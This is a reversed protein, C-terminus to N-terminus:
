IAEKPQRKWRRHIWVWQEPYRRVMQEVMDSCKQVDEILDAEPDGSDSVNIPPFFEIHYTMDKELHMFGCIIPINFRRALIVPGSPTNAKKGFFDVFVGKVRTDQDILMGLPCGERLARVIERTGTGRAINIYGAQNRTETILQDLKPNNIPTGVVKLPYGKWTLWAGLLEWNGFHATLLLMGTGKKFADEFYHMNEATIYRDMGEKIFIPIRIADVGATALHCFVGRAIRAIEARTKEDGFALALHRITNSRHKKLLYYLIVALGRALAIGARRPLIRFIAMFFLVAYCQAANKVSKKISM